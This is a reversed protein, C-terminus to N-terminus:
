GGITIDRLVFDPTQIVNSKNLSRDYIFVELMLTDQRFILEFGASQMKYKLTGELPRERGDPNLLPYRGNFTEGCLPDFATEFDFETYEGNKRVFFKISINHHFENPEVYFTDAIGIDNENIVYNSCYYPFEYEPLISDYRPNSKDAYTLFTGDEKVFYWLDHYPEGSDAGGARLGLDGDGDQFNLTLILSDPDIPEIGKSFVINNFSIKPENAFEPATFCSIGTFALLGFFLSNWFFAPLRRM